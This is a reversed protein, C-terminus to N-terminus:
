LDAGKRRGVPIRKWAAVVAVTIVASVFAEPLGNMIVLSVVLGLQAMGLLLIMGLVLLTHAFSGVAGAVTLGLEPRRKLASWVIWTIPGFWLRPFIAIWPNLFLADGPGTPAYSAKLMSFVGFILGIALGVMPGELVAGIIVPVHIFTLAVGTPWPIFGFGTLALTIALGALVGTIIIKRVHDQSM